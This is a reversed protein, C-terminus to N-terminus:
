AESDVLTVTQLLKLTRTAVRQLTMNCPDCYSLCCPPWHAKPKDLLAKVANRYVDDLRNELMAQALASEFAAGSTPVGHPGPTTM